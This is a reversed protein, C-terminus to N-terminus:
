CIEFIMTNMNKRTEIFGKTTKDKIKDLQEYLEDANPHEKTYLVQIPYRKVFEEIDMIDYLYVPYEDKRTGPGFLVYTNDSTKLLIMQKYPSFWHKKGLIGIVSDTNETRWEIQNLSFSPIDRKWIKKSSELLKTLYKNNRLRM